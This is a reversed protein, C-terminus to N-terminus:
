PKKVNAKKAEKLAAALKEKTLAHKADTTETPNPVYETRGVDGARVKESHDPAVMRALIDAKRNFADFITKFALVNEEARAIEQKHKLFSPNAEVVAKVKWEAPAKEESRLLATVAEGHWQRYRADAMVAEGAASAWRRGWLAMDTACKPRESESDHITLIVDLDVTTEKGDIFYKVSAM